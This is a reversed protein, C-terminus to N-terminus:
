NPLILDDEEAEKILRMAAFKSALESYEFKGLDEILIYSKAHNKHTLVVFVGHVMCTLLPQIADM